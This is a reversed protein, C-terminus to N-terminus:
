RRAEIASDVAVATPVPEHRSPRLERVAPEAAQPRGRLLLGTLQLLAAGAVFMIGDVTRAVSTTLYWTIENPNIVYAWLLTVFIGVGTLLYFAAPRRAWRLTLCALAVALGLPLLLNWTSATLQDYLAPFTPSLRSLRGSLYSPDLGQGIPMDGTIHHAALWLRWPAVTVAFAAAAILLPRLQALRRGRPAGAGIVLGAAVLASIAATLGENKTNAAAGLFLVALVLLATTREAIWRGLALVGLLLLIAMPIDAYLTMLQQTVSPIVAIFGAIPLAIAARTVPRALHAAAGLGAVLMIWFEVHLSQTDASGLVRFWLSELMPVLLPYDPHMTSYVSSGFFGSPLRGYDLLITAKRAWISWADWATLPMPRAWRYGLVAVVLLAVLIVAVVVREVTWRGGTVAPRHPRWRPGARRLALAIGTAGVVLSILAFTVVHVAVGLVALAIAVMMTAALGAMYALGVAGVAPWLAGSLAGAGALLGYGAFLFAVAILAAALDTAM